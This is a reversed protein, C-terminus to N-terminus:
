VEESMGGRRVRELRNDLRSKVKHLTNMFEKKIEKKLEEREKPTDVKEIAEEVDKLDISISKGNIQLHSSCTGKIWSYILYTALAFLSTGGLGIGLLNEVNVM